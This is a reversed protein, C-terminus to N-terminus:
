IFPQNLNIKSLLEAYVSKGINRGCELGTTNDDSFHIGGYLRSIGSLDAIYKTINRVSPVLMGFVQDWAGSFTSHGSIYGPFNPTTVLPKYNTIYQFPRAGWYTYKTTWAFLGADSIAISIVSLIKSLEVASLHQNALISCAIEILHAPPPTNAFHYAIEKEVDTTVIKQLNVADNQITTEPNHPITIFQNVLYNIKTTNWNPLVPNVGTWKDRAPSPLVYSPDLASSAIANRSLYSAVFSEIATKDDLKPYKNYISSTDINPLLTNALLKATENVVAQNFMSNHQMLSNYIGNIFIAYKRSSLPPAGTVKSNFFSTWNIIVDNNGDYGLESYIEVKNLDGCVVSFTHLKNPSLFRCGNYIANSNNLLYLGESGTQIYFIFTKPYPQFKKNLILTLCNKSNQVFRDNPQPTFIAPTMFYTNSM